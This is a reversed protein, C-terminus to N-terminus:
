YDPPEKVLVFSQGGDNTVWIGDETGIVVKASDINTSMIEVIPVGFNLM